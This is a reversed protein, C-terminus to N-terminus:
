RQRQSPQASSTGRRCGKIERLAVALAYGGDGLSIDVTKLVITSVHGQTQDKAGLACYDETDDKGM